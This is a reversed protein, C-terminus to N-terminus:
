VTAFESTVGGSATPYDIRAHHMSAYVRAFEDKIVDLDKLTLPAEHLQGQDVRQKVIHDIVERVRQPSPEQLVRVSAEVGDALMCIATEASQPVPGPYIYDAVNPVPAGDDGRAKEEFYTIHGTGHHEPIFASIAAPLHYEEALDLGEQIHNRIITASTGPKLMDHPNRGGAQNEVFYQPKALKGIDHYYTGVRGLLGNAGIANCAAEVLSAMAITHAYTGPAELSLRRLLPRNLDSWEVLTLSTTVGTLREALPMLFMALVVSVFANLVGFGASAGIQRTTWGLTLGLTVAAFLYAAGITIVYRYSDDRRLMTRMSLAAAAGGILNLFLANTGRYVSQGGALVALIMAAIMSIRADFLMSIIIAAIAVPVLEPRVPQWQAGIAAVVLVLTFVAAFLALARMSRYLGPRFVLIAIGFIALVLANYAIGGLVRRFARDGGVTSQLADHMARMKDFEARGVVEHEGVIKEGARVMYRNVDVSGRLDARRQETAAPDPIITPHLLGALLKLYIGDAVSSNPDPQLPRARRLLTGLTLVSDALVNREETGRRVLLEGQVDDLAGSAAIGEPLWRAYAHHVADQLARRRDARALYAGEAPTLALGRSMAARMAAAAENRKGGSDVAMAVSRMLASLQQQSSDLAAPSYDFIPKASRALQEREERLDTESKRVTFAFPAIVNQTAVSGIEFIPSDVAASTPFLLYTVLAVALLLAIRPGHLAFKEHGTDPAVIVAGSQPIRADM